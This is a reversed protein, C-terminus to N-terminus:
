SLDIDKKITKRKILLYINEIIGLCFYALSLTFIATAPHVSIIFLFIVFILLFSFPKKGKIDIEKFGHYKLTSVMLLSLIITILLFFINKGPLVKYFEYYFIVISALMTAAAPIPLGRFSKLDQGTQINFRALRLAGCAIFLFAAAWGIRDFEFLSWKYMMISPAIGSALFDSLSDLEVGFQTSTNTLRAVWGDLGDFINALVIAWAALIFNNNISSFISFFGCLMGCVTLTNPM